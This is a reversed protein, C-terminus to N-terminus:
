SLAGEPAAARCAAAFRAAFHPYGAWHAHLYSAHVMGSIHGERRVPSPLVVPPLRWAAAHGHAPIAATRHFEHARVVDGAAALVSAAEARAERYGLTLRGTMAADAPLVGCMPHGDLSRALYLLGACEAAVPVGRAAARAVDRRLPENASLEAAHVEPFGGGLIVGATRPPLREDRLPDFVVVELGAAALLEAHETYSFTFAAGGAM